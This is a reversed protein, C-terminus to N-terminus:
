ALDAPDIDNALEVYIRSVLLADEALRLITARPMGEVGEVFALALRTM